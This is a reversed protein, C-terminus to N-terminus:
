SNAGGFLAGSLFEAFKAGDVLVKDGIIQASLTAADRNAERRACHRWDRGRPKEAWGAIKPSQSFLPCDEYLRARMSASIRQFVFAAEVLVLQAIELSIEYERVRREINRIPAGIPQV